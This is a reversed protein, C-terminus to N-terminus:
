VHRALCRCHRCSSQLTCLLNHSLHPPFLLKPLLALSPQCPAIPSFTQLLSFTCSHTSIHNASELLDAISPSLSQERLCLGLCSCHFSDLARTSTTRSM